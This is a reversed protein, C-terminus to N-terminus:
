DLMYINERKLPSKQEVDTLTNIINNGFSIKKM